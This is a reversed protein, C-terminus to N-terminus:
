KHREVHSIFREPVFCCSYDNVRVWYGASWGQAYHRDKIWEPTWLDKLIVVPNCDSQFRYNPDSEKKHIKDIADQFANFGSVDLTGTLRIENKKTSSASM